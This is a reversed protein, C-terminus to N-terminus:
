AFGGVNTIAATLTNNFYVLTFQQIVLAATSIDNHASSLGYLLTQATGNVNLIDCYVKYTSTNIVVIFSYTCSIGEGGPAPVNTISLTINTSSPPANVYIIGATITSYDVVITPPSGTPTSAFMNEKVRSLGNISLNGHITQQSALIYVNSADLLYSNAAIPGVPGTSGTSGTSGFPGTHGTMGTAGTTGTIGTPGMQGMM